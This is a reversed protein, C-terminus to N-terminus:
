IGADSGISADAFADRLMRMKVRRESLLDGFGCGIRDADCLHLDTGLPGKRIAALDAFRM